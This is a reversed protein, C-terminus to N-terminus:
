IQKNRKPTTRYSTLKSWKLMETIFHGSKVMWDNGSAYFLTMLSEYIKKKKKNKQERM